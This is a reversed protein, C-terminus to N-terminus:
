PKTLFKIIEKDLKDLVKNDCVYKTKDNFIRKKSITKIQTLVAYCDQNYRHTNPIAKLLIKKLPIRKYGNKSSIPIVTINDNSITDDSNIVIAYHTHSLETGINIGFDVKIIQGRKFKPYFSICNFCEKYFIASEKELWIDIKEFKPINYSRVKKFNNSAIDIKDINYDSKNEM